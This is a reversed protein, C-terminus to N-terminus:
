VYKAIDVLKEIYQPIVAKLLQRCRHKVKEYESKREIFRGGICPLLM